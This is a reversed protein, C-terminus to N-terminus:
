QKQANIDAEANDIGVKYELSVHHFRASSYDDHIAFGMTQLQDPGFSVFGEPAKLPRKMEVTWVGDKLSGTFSTEVGGDMVRQDLIYGSEATDGSRYRVLDMLVGSAKLKDVDAQAAPKDYAGRPKGDDGKYEWETKSDLLYKTVGAKAQDQDKPHDPMYRSDHHCTAWCGAHDAKDVKGDDFMIALKSQNKADMKGGDAFPAPAHPTDPWQFQMYLNTGDHAAKVSTKIHGRKGPIPTPEAKEGSVIKAGMKDQEGEHCEVCRDGLKKIARAGGHDSGKYIWELSTQGPYLLTIDRAKVNGWNIASGGGSAAAAAKPAAAPAASAAGGAPKAVKVANIQSDKNELGLKYELSVHHFRAFSYDDHIAFGLTYEKGAEIGVSGPANAKMDRTMYVTWVGDKLAGTYTVDHSGDFKREAFITGAESKGSSLFRSVDMFSGAAMDGGAKGEKVYKTVEKGDQATPMYRSDDHCTAWCGAHDAYEVGGDDLMVALKVQNAPDMKGGDGIPAPVHAGDKWQFRMYLKDGDHAARVDVKFGGRKGPIPTPEPAKGQGAVIATGLKEQEGEHCEVCRDGLKKLARKGGHGSSYLWEISSQGPYFVAIEKTPVADWNIAAAGGASGGGSPAAAAPAPAKAAAAKAAADKAAKAAADAEAKKKAEEAKSPLRRNDHRGDYPDEGEQILSSVDRHAIGKHCDICTMNDAQALQHNKWARKKQKDQKMSGWDHCNRCERSDTNKMAKWVNKALSYRKDEFKEPTDITGLMKHLIENSAQVKRVIKHVWPRPVHCDSCTARVGSRNQYHVTEKYEEYVNEEMEHCTICFDMTNTAEMATNFAGWFLIGVVFFVAAAFLSAGLIRMRM